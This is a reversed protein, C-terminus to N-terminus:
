NSQYPVTHQVAIETQLKLLMAKLLMRCQIYCNNLTYFTIKKNKEKSTNSKLNDSFSAVSARTNTSM